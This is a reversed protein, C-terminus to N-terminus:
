YLPYAGPQEKSACPATNVRGAPTVAVLRFWCRAGHVVREHAPVECPWLGDSGEATALRDLLQKRGLGMISLRGHPPERNVRMVAGEDDSQVVHVVRAIWLEEIDALERRHVLILADPFTDLDTTRRIRLLRKASGALEPSRRLPPDVLEDDRLLVAVHVTPRSQQRSAPAIGGTLPGRAPPRQQDCVLVGGPGNGRVGWDILAGAGTAPRDTVM